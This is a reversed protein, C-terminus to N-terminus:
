HLFQTYNHYGPTLPGLTSKIDYNIHRIAPSPWYWSDNSRLIYTMAGGGWVLCVVAAGLLAAKLLERGKLLRNLSMAVLLFILLLVPLLYRGNIAVPQGTKVFAKYEDQWLAGLYLVSVLGFLWLAPRGQRHFLKPAQSLLALGGIVAFVIAALGPLLLPGRTEFQTGPGDVAFFTRLWLGYLWTHTFTLRLHHGSLPQVNALAFDYDRIWPAYASCQKISLVQSCDPVPNHYRVLNVAYRQGFLGLAAILGIGLGLRTKRGIRRWSEKVASRLPVTRRYQWWRVAIFLAIALLIPLFAYKVLSALLGVIALESIVALNLRKKVRLEEDLHLTLLLVGATLPLILNDYNIQAGLLPVIPILVLVLLCAQAVARSAGAKLLLRRYLTLGWVFLGINIFRLILVQITQDHTFVSILRYPFSMLYQYLYSPDRSVAGFIDAGAPQNSWFPSIHHAYLRIIGLHFDEDFAMPYRGSLAIWGAQVIFLGIILRFASRSGLWSVLRRYGKTRGM